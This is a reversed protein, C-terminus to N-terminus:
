RKKRRKGMLSKRKGEGSLSAKQGLATRKMATMAAQPSLCRFTSQGREMDGQEPNVM